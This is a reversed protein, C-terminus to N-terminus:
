IFQKAGIMFTKKSSVTYTRRVDMNLVKLMSLVFCEMGEIM